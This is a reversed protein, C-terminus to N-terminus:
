RRRPRAGRRRPATRPTRWRRPGTDARARCRRRRRRRGPACSGAARSPADCSSRSRSRSPGVTSMASSSVADSAACSSQDRTSPKAVSAPPRVWWVAIRARESLTGATTPSRSALRRTRGPVGTTSRRCRRRRRGTARRGLVDGARLPQGAAAALGPAPGRDRGPPGAAVSSPTAMRRSALTSRSSSTGATISAPASPM